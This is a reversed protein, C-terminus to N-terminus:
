ENSNYIIKTGENEFKFPVHILNHLAEKIKPQLEPEVFLLMFGGGGAGLLKGGIAGNDLATEYIKDIEPTTIKDTITRKLIWTLHLLKGFTKIDEHEDNLITIGTYVMKQMSHILEEKNHTQKIQEEAIDSATRTFGTFFLMLHDQLLNYRENSIKIPTVRINPGFQHQTTIFIDPTKIFEILNLGGYTAITQDQSGVNEHILEQEIHIADRTLQQKTFINCQLAGLARLLGVTFSSSTGLGTRSPLDADHHLEIGDNIKLYKLTERISPHKIKDITNVEESSSYSFRYKYPFLPQLKRITIYCYKDISTSLVAGGHKEYWTPYDSGGGFFSIRFPTKSIIM